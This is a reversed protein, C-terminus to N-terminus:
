RQRQGSVGAQSPNGYAAAPTRRGLSARCGRAAGGRHLPPEAFCLRRPRRAADFQSCRCDLNVAPHAAALLITRSTREDLHATSWRAPMPALLRGVVAQRQRASSRPRAALAAEVSRARIAAARRGQGSLTGPKELGGGAAGTDRRGSGPKPAAGSRRKKRLPRAAAGWLQARQAHQRGPRGRALAARSRAASANRSLDRYLIFAAATRCGGVAPGAPAM